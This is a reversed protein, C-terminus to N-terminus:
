WGNMQIHVSKELDIAPLEKQATSHIASFPKHCSVYSKKHVM